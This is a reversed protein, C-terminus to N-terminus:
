QSQYLLICLHNVATIITTSNHVISEEDEIEALFLPLPIEQLDRKIFPAIKPNSIQKPKYYKTKAM